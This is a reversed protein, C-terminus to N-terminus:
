WLRLRDALYNEPIHYPAAEPATPQKRKLTMSLPHTGKLERIEVPIGTLADLHPNSLALGLRSALGHARTAVAHAMAVLSQVAATDDGSLGLTEPNAICLAMPHFREGKLQLPKCPVGAIEKGTGAADLTIGQLTNQAVAFADLPFGGLMKEWKARQRADLGRLQQGLGRLLPTVDEVQGALRAIADETVPTYRQRRHDVLTLRKSTQEFVLDLSPDGGAARIVIEGHNITATQLSSHGDHSVAYELLSGAFLNGPHLLLYGFLAILRLLIPM